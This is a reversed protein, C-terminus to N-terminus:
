GVNNLMLFLDSDALSCEEVFSGVQEDLPEYDGGFYEM